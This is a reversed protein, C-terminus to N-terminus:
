ASGTARVAPNTGAMSMQAPISAAEPRTARPMGAVTAAHAGACSRGDPQRRRWRLVTPVGISRGPTGALARQAVAPPFEIALVAAMEDRSGFTWRVRLAVRGWCYRGGPSFFAEARDARVGPGAAAFWRAYGTRATVDLDVVVQLGGPRLVRDVEALGAECGPGFFYSWHSFVLDVSEDPCPLTQALGHRVTVGSDLGAAAVRRRAAELCGAHPEVGVVRDCRAALMPLHYGTGCGVDVATRVPAPQDALLSDLAAVVLGDPDAARNLREYTRPWRWINPSPTASM